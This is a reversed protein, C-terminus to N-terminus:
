RKQKSARTTGTSFGGDVLLLQGTVYESADSALFVAAGDLDHHGGTRRLPTREMIYHVWDTDEFLVKNQETKIKGSSVLEVCERYKGCNAYSGRIRIERTVIAQFNIEGFEEANGIFTVDGGSKTIDIAQQFTEAM